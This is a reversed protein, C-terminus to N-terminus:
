PVVLVRVDASATNGAADWAFVRLTYPGPPLRSTDWADEASRASSVRNTVIYRFRTRRAGYVTIGSGPAYALQPAGQDQPMGDFEITTLPSEFGPVPTGDGHLVQYGLRYAGLRRRRSDGDVRDFADVVIRVRGRVVLRNAARVKLPLWTEDYLTVGHPEITPALHDVFGALALALPNTERGPAGYNLHVHAFRNVTGLADGLSVRTGRRLRAVVPRGTEDALVQFPYTHLGAIAGGPPIPSADALPGGAFDIPRDRSDRGVRLHIYAFPPLSLSETLSGFGVASVPNQVKGSSVARVVTGQAAQVDIGAHFRERPDAMSGRAEGLTGAIEHWEFQPDVPWPVTRRTWEDEVSETMPMIPSRRPDSEYLGPPAVRRIMANGADAVILAGHADVAVGTPNSFRAELGAGDESGSSTGALVRARGNELLQLIRGRRDTIFAGHEGAAIGIPRVLSVDETISEATLAVTSVTRDRAIRRVANNATDAVLLGGTPDVAVGCPVDFRAAQGPGDQFGALGDGAVTWVSGSTGIARIRNNYADAVYLTGDPGLALGMPGDFAASAAPGDLFGPRGVGAVTVVDGDRSIRRIVHTGTDAVYLAGDPGLALGSPTHFMAAGRRGDRWGEGSGGALTVVRGDPDLRRVRNNDGADAIYIRGDAAAAVAFPDSFGAREAPGEADAPTGRGALTTVHAPWAGATLIPEPVPRMLWVTAAAAVAALAILITAIARARV